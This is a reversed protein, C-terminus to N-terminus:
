VRIQRVEDDCAGVGVNIEFPVGLVHQGLMVVKKDFNGNGGHDPAVYRLRALMAEGGWRLSERESHIKAPVVFVPQGLQRLCNLFKFRM